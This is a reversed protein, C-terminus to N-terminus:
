QGSFCCMWGQEAVTSRPGRVAPDLLGFSQDFGDEGGPTAARLDTVVLDPDPAPMEDLVYRRIRATDAASVSMQGWQGADEPDSTGELGLREAVRAGDFRTWLANMTGDDSRSSARRVLDLSRDDVALGDLRCRDLADVALVVKAESATYYPEEGRRGVALARTAWTYARPTVAPDREVARFSASWRV